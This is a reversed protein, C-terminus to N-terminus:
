ERQRDPLGAKELERGLTTLWAGTMRLDSILSWLPYRFTAPQNKEVMLHTIWAPGYGSIAAAVLLESHETVLGVILLALAVCTGAMHWHRTKPNSHERLYYPWFEGYSAIRAIQTM